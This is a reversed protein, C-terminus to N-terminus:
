ICSSDICLSCVSMTTKLFSNKKKEELEYDAASAFKLMVGECVIFLIDGTHKFMVIRGLVILTMLM